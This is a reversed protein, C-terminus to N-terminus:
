YSELSPSCHLTRGGPLDQISPSLPLPHPPVQILPDWDEMTWQSTNKNKLILPFLSTSPPSPHTLFPGKYLHRHHTLVLSFTLTHKQPPTHLPNTPTFDIDSPILQGSSHGSLLTYGQRRSEIGGEREIIAKM